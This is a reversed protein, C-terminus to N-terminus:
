SPKWSGSGAGAGVDDIVVLATVIRYSVANSTSPTAFVIIFWSDDLYAEGFLGAGLCKCLIRIPSEPSVPAQPAKDNCRLLLIARARLAPLLM